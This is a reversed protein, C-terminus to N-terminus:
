RLRKRDLVSTDALHSAVEDGEPDLKLGPSPQNLAITLACFHRVASECTGYGRDIGAKVWVEPFSLLFWGVM